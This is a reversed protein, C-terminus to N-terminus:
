NAKRCDELNWLTINQLFTVLKNLDCYNIGPNIVSLGRLTHKCTEETNVEWKM